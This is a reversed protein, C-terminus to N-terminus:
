KDTEDFGIALPRDALFFDLLNVLIRL